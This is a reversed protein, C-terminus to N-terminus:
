SCQVLIAYQQLSYHRTHRWVLLAGVGHHYSIFETNWDTDCFVFYPVRGGKCIYRGYRTFYFLEALAM